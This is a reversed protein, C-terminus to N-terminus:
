VRTQRWDEYPTPDAAMADIMADWGSIALGTATLFSSGDLTRDIQAEGSPEIVVAAGYARNLRCLLDYKSIPQSAVHYM